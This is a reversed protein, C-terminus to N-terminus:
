DVGSCPKLKTYILQATSAITYKGQLNPLMYDIRSM